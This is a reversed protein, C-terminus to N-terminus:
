FRPEASDADPAPASPAAPAAKANLKVWAGAEAGGEEAPAPKISAITLVLEDEVTEVNGSVEVHRLLASDGGRSGKILTPKVGSAELITVTPVKCRVRGKATSLRTSVVSGDEGLNLYLSGIRTISMAM